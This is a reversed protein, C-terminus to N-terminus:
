CLTVDNESICKQKRKNKKAKIWMADDDSVKSKREYFVSSIMMMSEKMLHRWRWIDGIKQGLV